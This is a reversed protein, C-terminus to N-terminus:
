PNSERIWKLTREDALKISCPYARSFADTDYEYMTRLTHVSLLSALLTVLPMEVNEIVPVIRPDNRAPYTDSDKLTHMRVMRNKFRIFQPETISRLMIGDLGDFFDIPGVCHGFDPVDTTFARQFEAVGPLRLRKKLVFRRFDPLEDGYGPFEVWADALAPIGKDADNLVYSALERIDSSDLPVKLAQIIRSVSIEDLFVRNFESGAGRQVCIKWCDSGTTRGDVVEANEFVMVCSDEELKSSLLKRRFQKNPRAKFMMGAKRDIDDAQNVASTPRGVIPGDSSDARKFTILARKQFDEDNAKTVRARIDERIARALAYSLQCPVANGILKYRDSIHQAVLQFGIPFGQIAAVMRVTPQRYIPRRKGQYMMKKDTEFLISERSSSNYTAMITRAPHSLDDPLDMRGYQIHRRKLHRMEELYMPHVSTDYSNDRLDETRIFHGPYNPDEIKGSKGSAKISKQFREILGGLNIDYNRDVKFADMAELPYDGVIFRKRNECTGYDSALHVRGVPISLHDGKLGLEKVRSPPIGLKDYSIRWGTKISEDCEKALVEELRPVNEMLWYRPKFLAVFLLHKRVLLMGKKVDGKGGKKAYSFETCPPSGILVDIPGHETELRAKLSLVDDVEYPLLDVKDTRGLGNLTHTDCAPKWFDAGYVVDFGAMHFGESFGGAGCFLDV